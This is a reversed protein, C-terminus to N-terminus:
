IQILLLPPVVANGRPKAECYHGGDGGAEIIQHLDEAPIPDGDFSPTARRGQIAELLTKKIEAMVRKGAEKKLHWKFGFHWGFQGKAESIRHFWM